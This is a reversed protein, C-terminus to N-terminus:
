SIREILADQKDVMLRRQAAKITNALVFSTTIPGVGDPVASISKAKGQVAPLDVDGVIRRGGQGDDVANIGIDIITADPAIHSADILGAKGAAVFLLEATRCAATLDRTDIHAITVTAGRQLLLFALPRGVNASAGVVTVVRGRLDGLITEALTVAAQPTCPFLGDLGSTLQGASFATLGDVDKEPSLIAAIQALSIDTPFPALPLIGDVREDINLAQLISRMEDFSAAVPAEVSRIDVHAKQAFEQIRRAYALAPPPAGFTVIALCPTRGIDRQIDDSQAAADALLRGAVAHGDVIQTM